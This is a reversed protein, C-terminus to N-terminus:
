ISKKIENVLKNTEVITNNILAKCGGEPSDLLMKALYDQYVQLADYIIDKEQKTVEITTKIIM